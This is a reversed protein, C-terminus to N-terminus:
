AKLPPHIGSRSVGVVAAGRSSRPVGTLGEPHDPLRAAVNYLALIFPHTLEGINMILDPLQFKMEMPQDRFQNYGRAVKQLSVPIVM